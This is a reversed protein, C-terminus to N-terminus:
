SVKRLDESRDDHDTPFAAQPPCWQEDPSMMERGIESLQAHARLTESQASTLAAAARQLRTLALQCEGKPAGDVEVQAIALTAVTESAAALARAVLEETEALNRALRASAAPLTLAM